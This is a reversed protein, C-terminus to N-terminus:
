LAGARYVAVGAVAFVSFDFVIGRFFSVKMSTFFAETMSTYIMRHSDDPGMSHALPHVLFGYIADVFLYCVGMGAGMIVISWLLRKRLETLHQLLPQREIDIDM